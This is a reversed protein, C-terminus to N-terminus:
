GVTDQMHEPPPATEPLGPDSPIEPADPGPPRTTDPSPAPIEPLDQPTPSIDPEPTPVVPIEQPNNPEYQATLIPQM